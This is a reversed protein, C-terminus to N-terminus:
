THSANVFFPSVTSLTTSSLTPMFDHVNRAQFGAIPDNNHSYAPERNFVGTQEPINTDFHATSNTWLNWRLRGTKGIQTAIFSYRIPKVYVHHDSDTLRISTTARELANACVPEPRPPETDISAVM